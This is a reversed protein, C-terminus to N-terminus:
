RTRGEPGVAIDAGALGVVVVAASLLAIAQVVPSDGTSVSGVLLEGLGAYGFVSEVLASSAVMGALVLTAVRLLPARLLPLVHRVLVVPEPLGRVRADRVHPLAWADAVAGGLLGAGFAAAPVALALVPLVLAEPRSWVSGSVPVFSVAPLWRLAGAFVAVLGVAVVVQPTATVAALAPAYVRPRRGVAWAGALLLPFAVLAAAGVLALTAPLRAALLDAVPRGTVLSSGLDGRALGAAWAAFRTWIPRDLGLDARLAATGAEGARGGTRAQAADAPLAATALFVLVSVAALVLVARGVSRAILWPM